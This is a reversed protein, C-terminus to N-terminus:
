PSPGNSDKLADYRAACERGAIGRRDAEAALERGRRELRGLMDALVLGPASAAPGHGPASTDCAGASAALRAAHARLRGAAADAADADARARRTQIEADDAARQQASLRRTTEILAGHMAQERLTATEAQVRALEAGAQTARHHQWGGWALAALLAWAWLPVVRLLTLGM